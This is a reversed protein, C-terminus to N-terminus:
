TDLVACVRFKCSCVAYHHQAQFLRADNRLLVDYVILQGICHFCWGYHICSAVPIPVVLNGDDCHPLPPWEFSWPLNVWHIPPYLFWSGGLMILGVAVVLRPLLWYEVFIWHWVWRTPMRVGWHVMRNCCSAGTVFPIRPGLLNSSLCSCCTPIGDLLRITDPWM